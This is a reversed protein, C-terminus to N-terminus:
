IKESVEDLLYLISQYPVGGHRSLGIECTLSNSFGRSCDIPIQQKLTILASENLEPTTFGKDGAFGCCLIDEPLIVKTACLEALKKMSDVLGMRRSSCTVHLMVTEDLQNIQLDDILYNLAFESPEFVKVSKSLKDVARKKCPSTDIIVPYKGSESATWLLNEFQGFEKNAIETLGKSDFPLGCCSDALDKAIIVQYGAKELLSITVDTLSRQDLAKPQTGMVRASCSPYYVVKKDSILSPEIKNKNTTPYEAFWIPINKGSFRHLNKGILNTTRDPLFTQLLSSAKLSTKVLSSTTAFHNASFNALSSINKNEASRLKKVLEGTNIGVPCLMECLGTAACTDLGLYNFQETLQSIQKKITSNMKQSRLDQLQRYMVIRQRPTLSLNRSPCVPECFGCEICADVLDDAPPLSKLNKIHADPQDNIIVGPNILNDPDFLAKIKKMLAYAVEGWELEVFPAMNRGTGHEAKLSGQYKIAVLNSVQLMLQQYRKVEFDDAFNQTFVFHLNGELAHGFIIAQQYDYIEFLKKLDQTAEALQEVPFAIDEIIVSTGKERIAGVSPFLGKRIQWLNFCLDIDFSFDVAHRPKIQNALHSITQIKQELLLQTEAECEILLACNELQCTKIFEPIGKKNAISFLSAGDMLEVASVKMKNEKKALQTVVLCASEVTDYVFLATAKFPLVAITQYTIDAIFGLTGESGIMLHQLIEIPDTFDVLANLSYGTTNKLRYKHQILEKLKKDNQSIEALSKLQDLFVGHSQKFAAVSLPDGTDVITGDHLIITMSTLTKYSNAATGCCMGSANNAAIGGIKCANISAPDPGIKRQFPALLQNARAGIIGPQLKIQRADDIIEFNLWDDTLMILVSDSIAQGSLSTGAARYTYHAKFLNCLQIVAVIEKISAAKVIVQPTLRYFSADTGIAHCISQDSIVRKKDLLQILQSILKKYDIATPM